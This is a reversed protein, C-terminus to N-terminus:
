FCQDSPLTHWRSVSMLEGTAPKDPHGSWLTKQQVQLYFVGDQGSQCRLFRDLKPFWNKQHLPMKVFPHGAQSSVWKFALNQLQPEWVVTSSCEQQYQKQSTSIICYLFYRVKQAFLSIIHIECFKYTWWPVIKFSHKSWQWMPQYVFIHAM